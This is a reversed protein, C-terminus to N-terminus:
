VCVHKAPPDIVKSQVPRHEAVVVQGFQRRAALLLAALPPMGSGGLGGRWRYSDRAFATSASAIPPLLELGSRRFALERPPRYGDTCNPWAVVNAGHHLQRKEGSNSRTILVSHDDTAVYDLCEGNVLTGRKRVVGARDSGARRSGAACRRWGGQWPPGSSRELPSGRLLDGHNSTPRRGDRHDGDHGSGDPEYEGM